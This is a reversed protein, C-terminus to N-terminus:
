ESKSGENRSIHSNIATLEPRKEILSLIDDMGFIKNETGLEAYISDLFEYDETQDLTWRFSSLDKQSSLNGLTFFRSNARIYPTVHERDHRATAESWCRRLADRTVVEVDLGDPWSPPAINSTYDNGRELHLAIVRDIMVPDMVPCDATIRVFHDARTLRAAQWYRDLVDDESGVYLAVGLGSVFHILPLNNKEISTVVYVDDVLTAAEARRIVHEIVPRTGITKLVKGPLRTSGMRAQILAIVM